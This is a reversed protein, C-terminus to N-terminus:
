YQPFNKKEVAKEERNGFIRSFLSERDFIMVDNGLFIKAEILPFKGMM